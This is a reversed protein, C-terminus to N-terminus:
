KLRFIVKINDIPINKYDIKDQWRLEMINTPRPYIYFFGRNEIGDVGYAIIHDIEMKDSMQSKLEDIESEIESWKFTTEKNKGREESLSIFIDVYKNAKKFVWKQERCVIDMEYGNDSLYLLIEEIESEIVHNEDFNEFVQKKISETYKRGKYSINAEYGDDTIDTLLDRIEGEMPGSSEFLKYSKLRNMFQSLM